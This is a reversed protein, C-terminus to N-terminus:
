DALIACLESCVTFIIKIIRSIVKLIELLVLDTLVSTGLWRSRDWYWFKFFTWAPGSFNGFHYKESLKSTVHSWFQKYFLISPSLVWFTPFRQTLFVFLWCQENTACQSESGPSGHNLDPLSFFNGRKNKLQSRM